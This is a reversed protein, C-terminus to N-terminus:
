ANAGPAVSGAAVFVMVRGAVGLADRAGTLPQRREDGPGLRLDLSSDSVTPSRYRPKCRRASEGLQM